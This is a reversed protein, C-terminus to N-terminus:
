DAFRDAILLVLHSCRYEACYVLVGRVDMERMEGFTLKLPRHGPPPTRNEPRVPRRM